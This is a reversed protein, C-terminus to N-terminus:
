ELSALVIIITVIPVVVGTVLAPYSGFKVGGYWTIETEAPVEEEVMGHWIATLHTQAVELHSTLAVWDGINLGIHGTFGPPEIREGSLLIGPSFDLSITSNLWYRLRPKLGMRPTGDVDSTGLFLTSGLASRQNLNTMGGLEWTYYGEGDNSGPHRDLLFNVGFETLWFSKCKPLPQGRFCTKAELPASGDLSLTILIMVVPVLVVKRLDKKM